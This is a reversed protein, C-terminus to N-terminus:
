SSRSMPGQYKGEPIRGTEDHPEPILEAAWERSELGEDWRVFAFGSRTYAVTGRKILMVRDGTKM